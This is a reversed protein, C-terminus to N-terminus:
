HKVMMRSKVLILNLYIVIVCLYRCYSEYYKNKIRKWNIDSQFYFSEFAFTDNFSVEQMLVTYIFTLTFIWYLYLYHSVMLLIYIYLKIKVIWMWLLFCECFSRFRYKYKVEKTLTSSSCANCKVNHNESYFWSESLDYLKFM